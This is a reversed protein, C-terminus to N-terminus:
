LGGQPTVEAGCAPCMFVGESLCRMEPHGCDRAHRGRAEPLARIQRLTDFFGYSLTHECSSCRALFANIARLEGSECIPCVLPRYYHDSIM